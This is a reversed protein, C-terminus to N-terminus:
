WYRFPPCNRGAAQSHSGRSGGPPIGPRAAAGQSAPRCCSLPEGETGALDAGSALYHKLNELATEQLKDIEVFGACLPALRALSRLDKELWALDKQLERQLLQRCATRSSRRAQDPNRFLRVHLHQDDTQLGPWAEVAGERVSSPLDGFTWGALSFREWRAVLRGWEPPDGAPQVKKEELQARIIKLDRSATVTKQDHGVVEIRPRLHAPLADPPWATVPVEVGYHKLIYRSLSQLLSEGSPQLNKALDAIKPPM